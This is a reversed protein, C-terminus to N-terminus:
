ATRPIGFSHESPLFKEFFVRDAPAIKQSRLEAESFAGDFYYRQWRLGYSARDNVKGLIAIGPQGGAQQYKSLGGIEEFGMARRYFKAHRPHVVAVLHEVGVFRAHFIMLRTLQGFLDGRSVSPTPDVCLSSVEALRSGRSRLNSIIDAYNSEMPIQQRDSDRILSLTGIVRGGQVTVFVQTEHWLHYPLVRLSASNERCLGTESYRRKLLQFAGILDERTRATRCVISAEPQNDTHAIQLQTGCEADKTKMQCDREM